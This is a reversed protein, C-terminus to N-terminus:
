CLRRRPFAFCYFADWRLGLWYSRLGVGVPLVWFDLVYQRRGRRLWPNDILLVIPRERWQEPVEGKQHLEVLKRGFKLAEETTPREELGQKKAQEIVEQSSAPSGMEIITFDLESESRGSIKDPRGEQWENPSLIADWVYSYGSAGIFDSTDIEPGGVKITFLNPARGREKEKALVRVMEDLILEGEPKVLNYIDDDTCGAKHAKSVFLQVFSMGVGMGSIVNSKRM